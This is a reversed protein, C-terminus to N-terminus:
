TGWGGRMKPSKVETDGLMNDIVKKEEEQQRM